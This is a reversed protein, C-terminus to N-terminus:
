DLGGAGILRWDRGVPGAIDIGDQRQGNRIPWYHVQGSFHQWLIDDTGDGNLDGSGIIQWDRGVPGAIDIGDQRQGNRIPWYHVQGSVHQWLIDDTGDDNLDGSGILRWEGGVPGAINIGDLRQGNRIPWYHVQGSVHQWLVDDTSLTLPQGTTGILEAVLNVTVDGESSNSLRIIHPGTTSAVVSGTQITEWEAGIGGDHEWASCTVTVPPFQAQTLIRNIPLTEGTNAEQNSIFETEQQNGLACSLRWDCTGIENCDNVRLSTFNVRVDAQAASSVATSIAAASLIFGCTKM